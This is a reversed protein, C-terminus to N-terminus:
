EHTDNRYQACLYIVGSNVFGLRRYFSENRCEKRIIYIDRSGLVSILSAICESGIGNRRCSKKTCVSGILAAKESLAATMAFSIMEGNKEANCFMATEHRIRHSMELLFDEYLPVEFDAERCSELLNYIKRYDPQVTNYIVSVNKDAPLLSRDELKMIVNSIGSDFLRSESEVSAYGIAAVFERLEEIDAHATNFVTINGSYKSIVATPNEKAGYQVWFDAIGSYKGYSQYLCCIRCACVNAGGCLQLFDYKNNENVLEIM